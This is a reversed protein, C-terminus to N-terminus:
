LSFAMDTKKALSRIVQLRFNIIVKHILTCQSFMHVILSISIPFKSKHRKTHKCNEQLNRNTFNPYESFAVFNSFFRGSLIQCQETVDFKVHFIKEFKTAKESYGFKLLLAMNGSSIYGITKLGNSTQLASIKILTHVTKTFCFQM